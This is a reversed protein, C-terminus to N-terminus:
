PKALVHEIFEQPPRLGHEQVYHALGEPWGFTGDTLCLKGNPRLKCFRCTSSGIWFYLLTGSQLYAVVAERHSPGWTLDVFDQPNPRPDRTYRKDRTKWYGLYRLNPYQSNTDYDPHTTFM